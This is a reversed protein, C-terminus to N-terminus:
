KFNTLLALPSSDFTFGIHGRIENGTLLETRNAWSVGIPVKLGGGPKQVTIGAQLVVIHGKESLLPAGKPPLPIATGPLTTANEPITIISSNIQYQYYAGVFLRLASDRPGLPRDFQLAAQADKWRSTNLKEGTPQPDKFMDLGFNFTVTGPNKTSSANPSFAFAFRGTFLKPQLAPESYNFEATIGSDTVITSELDRQLAFYRVYANALDQLKADFDLDLARMEVLLIDLRKAFNEAVDAHNESKLFRKTEARWLAYVTAGDAREARTTPDIPVKTNVKLLVADIFKLLEEGAANLRPQNAKFWKMWQDRYKPSRLDRDNKAAWRVTASSFQHKNLLSSFEVPNGSVSTGNLTQSGSDGVNFSASVEIDKLFGYNACSGNGSCPSFVDQNSLFRALGDANARLTLVTQDITQSVAGTEIAMSVLSTLGTKSVVSTSGAASPSSGIQEDLRARAASQLFQKFSNTLASPPLAYYAFAVTDTLLGDALGDVAQDYASQSVPVLIRRGAEIRVGVREMPFQELREDLSRPDSSQGFLSAALLFPLAILVKVKHRM